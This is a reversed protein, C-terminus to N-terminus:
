PRNKGLIWHPFHHNEMVTIRTSDEDGIDSNYFHSVYYGSDDTLLFTNIVDFIEKLEINDHDRIRKHFGLKHNYIHEVAITCHTYNEMYGTQNRFRIMAAFFPAAIFKTGNKKRAPLLAPIKITTIGTVDCDSIDRTIEIGLADAANIMCDRSEDIPMSEAINRLSLTLYESSIAVDHTGRMFYLPDLKIDANVLAEIENVLAQAKKGAKALNDLIPNSM